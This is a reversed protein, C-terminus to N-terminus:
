GSRRSNACLDPSALTFPHSSATDNFVDATGAPRPSSALRRTRRRRRRGSRRPTVVTSRLTGSHPRACHLAKAAAAARRRGRKRGPPGQKRGPGVAGRHRAPGAGRGRRRRPACRRLRRVEPAGPASVRAATCAARHGRWKCGGANAPGLVPPIGGGPAVAGGALGRCARSGTGAARALCRPAIQSQM